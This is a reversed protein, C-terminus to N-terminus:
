DGDHRQDRWPWLSRQIHPIRYRVDQAALPCRRLGGGRSGRGLRWARLLPCSSGRARQTPPSLRLGPRPLPPFPPHSTSTGRRASIRVPRSLERVAIPTTRPDTGARCPSATRRRRRPRLTKSSLERMTSTHAHARPLFTPGPGRRLECLPAPPAGAQVPTRTQNIPMRELPRTSAM